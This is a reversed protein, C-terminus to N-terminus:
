LESRDRVEIVGIVGIVCQRVATLGTAKLLLVPIPEKGDDFSAEAIKGGEVSDHAIREDHSAIGARRRM